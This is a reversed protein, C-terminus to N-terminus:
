HIFLLFLLLGLWLLGLFHWFIGATVLGINNESNIKGTFSHILPRIMVLLTGIIHLLHLVTIIYLYSSATDPSELSKLQLYNSLIRGNLHLERKKYELEQGKFFIHFDKGLEGRVFFDGRGDRVNIALYQLRTLDLKELQTSDAKMLRGDLTILAEDRFMLVFNKGYDKVDFEGDKNYELFQAMFKQYDQMQAANMKKGQWLFDNGNVEIYKDKYKVDFYDGYRGDTVVIHNSVAYVGKDVLQGYGKFQFYVFGLGLLFTLAVLAKLKGIQDKRAARVSLVFTVSSLVILVTSIWFAPPLPVKVWFSDGMSVIYASILGGFLMLVSILSVYVLNKKAKELREKENFVEEEPQGADPNQTHMDKM